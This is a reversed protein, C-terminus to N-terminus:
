TITAVFVSAPPEGDLSAGSPLSTRCAFRCAGTGRRRWAWLGPHALARRARRFARSPWPVGCPAGCCRACGLILCDAPHEHRSDTASTPSVCRGRTGVSARFRSRLARPLGLRGAPGQRPLGLSAALSLTRPSATCTFLARQPAREYRLTLTSGISPTRTRGTATTRFRRRCRRAQRPPLRRPQPTGRPLRRLGSATSSPAPDSGALELEARSM